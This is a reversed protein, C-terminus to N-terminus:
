ITRGEKEETLIADIERDLEGEIEAYVHTFKDEPATKARGIRERVPM